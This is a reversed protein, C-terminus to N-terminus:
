REGRQEPTLGGSGCKPCTVLGFGQCDYCKWREFVNGNKKNKGSGKCGQCTIAGKGKCTACSKAKNNGQSEKKNVALKKAARWRRDRINPLFLFSPFLGCVFGGVHSWNSVFSNSGKTISTVVFFAITALTFALRLLPQTLSRFNLLLDAIALGLFGFVSGSAGVVLTCAPEFTASTFAAGLASIVWVLAIRWTGYSVELLGALAVLLLMNALLHQFSTHVLVSTGWRYWQGEAIAPGYRGGWALLYDFSFVRWGPNFSLWHLLSRPSTLQYADLHVVEAAASQQQATSRSTTTLDLYLAFDGAMFFFLSVIAATVVFTCWPLYRQNAPPALWDAFGLMSGIRVGDRRLDRAVGRFQKGNLNRMVLMYKRGKQVQGAGKLQSPGTALHRAKRPTPSKTTGPQQKLDPTASRKPKAADPSRRLQQQSLRRRTRSSSQSLTLSIHAPMFASYRRLLDPHDKLLLMAQEAVAQIPLAGSSHDHVLQLVAAFRDPQALFAAEALAVFAALVEPTAM